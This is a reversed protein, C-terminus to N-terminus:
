GTADLRIPFAPRDGRPGGALGTCACQRRGFLPSSSRAESRPSPSWRTLLPRPRCLIVRFAIVRFLGRLRGTSSVPSQLTPRCGGQYPRVNVDGSCSCCILSSPPGGASSISTVTRHLALTSSFFVRLRSVRFRGRLRRRRPRSVLSPSQCSPSPCFAVSMFAVSLFSGGQYEQTM